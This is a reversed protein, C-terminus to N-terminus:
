EGRSTTAFRSRRSSPLSGSGMSGHYRPNLPVMWSTLDVSVCMSSVVLVLEVFHAARQLMAHRLM